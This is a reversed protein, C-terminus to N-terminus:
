LFLCFIFLLVFSSCFKLIKQGLDPWLYSIPKVKDRRFIYYIGIHSKYSIKSIIMSCGEGSPGCYGFLKGLTNVKDMPSVLGYPTSIQSFQFILVQLKPSTM